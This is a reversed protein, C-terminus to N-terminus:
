GTPADQGTTARLAFDSKDRRLKLSSPLEFLSPQNSGEIIGPLFPAFFEQRM